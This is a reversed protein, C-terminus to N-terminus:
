FNNHINEGASLFICLCLCFHFTPKKQITHLGVNSIWMIRHDLARWFYKGIFWYKRYKYSKKIQVFLYLTINENGWHSPNNDQSKYSYTVTSFTMITRGIWQNEALGMKKVMQSLYFYEVHSYMGYQIIKSSNYNPLNWWKQHCMNPPQRECSLTSILM